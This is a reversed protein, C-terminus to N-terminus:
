RLAPACRERSCSHTDSHRAEQDARAWRNEPFGLSRQASPRSIPWFRSALRPRHSNRCLEPVCGRALQLPARILAVVRPMATNPSHVRPEPSCVRRPHQRLHRAKALKWIQFNTTALRLSWCAPRTHEGIRPRASCSVGGEANRGVM